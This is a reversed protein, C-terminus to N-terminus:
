HAKDGHYKYGGFLRKTGQRWCSVAAGKIVLAVPRRIKYPALVLSLGPFVQNGLFKMLIRDIKRNGGPFWRKGAADNRSLCL